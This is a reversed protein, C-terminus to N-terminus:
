RILLADIGDGATFGALRRCRQIDAAGGSVAARFRRPRAASQRAPELRQKGTENALLSKSITFAGSCYTVTCRISTKTPRLWFRIGSSSLRTSHDVTQICVRGIEFGAPLTPSSSSPRSYPSIAATRPMLVALTLSHQAAM